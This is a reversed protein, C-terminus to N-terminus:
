KLFFPKIKRSLVKILVISWERFSMQWSIILILALILLQYVLRVEFKEVVVIGIVSFLIGFFLFLIIEGIYNLESDLEKIKTCEEKIYDFHISENDSKIAEVSKEISEDTKKDIEKAAVKLGEAQKDIVEKVYSFIFILSFFSFLFGSLSFVNVSIKGFLYGVGIVAIIISALNKLLDLQAFLLQNLFGVEFDAFREKLAFADQISNEIIKRKSENM